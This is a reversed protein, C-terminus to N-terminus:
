PVRIEDRPWPVRIERIEPPCVAAHRQSSRNVNWVLQAM